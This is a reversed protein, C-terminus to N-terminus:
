SRGCAPPATSQLADIGKQYSLFIGDGLQRAISRVEPPMKSTTADVLNRAGQLQDILSTTIGKVEGIGVLWSKKSICTNVLNDINRQMEQYGSPISVSDTLTLETASKVKDASLIYTSKIYIEITPIIYGKSNLVADNLQRIALNVDNIASTLVTVQSMATSTIALLSFFHQFKM